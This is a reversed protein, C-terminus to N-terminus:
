SRDAVVSSLVLDVTEASFGKAHLLRVLAAQPRPKSSALREAREREPPLGALAAAVDEPDIGRRRLDAAIAADGLNRGGLVQAREAAARANSLYGVHQLHAIARAADETSVGRKRLRAALEASSLERRALARLAVELARAPPDAM